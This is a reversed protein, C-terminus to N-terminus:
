SAIAVGGVGRGWGGAEINYRLWLYIIKKVEEDRPLQEESCFEVNFNPHPPVTM